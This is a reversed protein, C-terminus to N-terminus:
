RNLSALVKAVIHLSGTVVVIGSGNRTRERLIRNALRSSDSLSKEAALVTEHKSEQRLFSFKDEFLEGYEIMRDHLVNVGLERSAQM